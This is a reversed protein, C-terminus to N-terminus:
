PLIELLEGNDIKFTLHTFSDFTSDGHTYPHWTKISQTLDLLHNILEKNFDKKKYDLGLSEVEYNGAEGKCNIIFRLTIYGSQNVIGQNDFRQNYYLRLSDKGPPFKYIWYRNWATHHAFLKEKFCPSFGKQDSGKLEIHGVQHHHPNVIYYDCSALLLITLLIIYRM